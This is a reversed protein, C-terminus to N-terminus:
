AKADRERLPLPPNSRNPAEAEQQAQKILRNIDGDSLGAKMVRARSENRGPFLEKKM